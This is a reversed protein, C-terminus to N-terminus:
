RRVSPASGHSMSSFIIASVPCRFSRVYEIQHRDLQIAKTFLGHQIIRYGRRQLGVTRCGGVVIRGVELVAGSTSADLDAFSTLPFSVVPTLITRYTYFVLPVLPMLRRPQLVPTLVGNVINCRYSLRCVKLSKMIIIQVPQLIFRKVVSRLLRGIVIEYQGRTKKIHCPESM